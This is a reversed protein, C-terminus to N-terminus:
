PYPNQPPIEPPLDPPPPYPSPTGEVQQMYKNIAPLYLTSKIPTFRNYGNQRAIDYDACSTCPADDIYFQWIITKYKGLAVEKVTNFKIDAESKATNCPDCPSCNFECVGNDALWVVYPRQPDYYQGDFWEQWLGPTTYIGLNFTEGYENGKEVIGDLFGELVQRNWDINVYDYYHWGGFFDSNPDDDVTGPEIDAFFTKGAFLSSYDYYLWASGAKLGQDRGYDYPQRGARFKYYPGKVCWYTHTYYFGAKNAADPSFGPEYYFFEGVGTRGIYFNQPFNSANDGITDVAWITDTGYYYPGEGPIALATDLSKEDLFRLIASAAIASGSVIALKIFNRRGFIVKVKDNQIFM